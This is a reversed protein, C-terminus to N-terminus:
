PNLVWSPARPRARPNNPTDQFLNIHKNTSSWLGNMTLEIELLNRLRYLKSNQPKVSEPEPNLICTPNGAAFKTPHELRTREESRYFHGLFLCWPVVVCSATSLLTAHSTELRKLTPRYKVPITATALMKSGRSPDCTLPLAIFALDPMFRLNFSNSTKLMYIM